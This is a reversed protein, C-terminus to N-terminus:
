LIMHSIGLDTPMFHLEEFINLIAWHLITESLKYTQVQAFLVEFKFITLIIFWSSLYM